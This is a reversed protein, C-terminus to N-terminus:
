GDIIGPQDVFILWPLWRHDDVIIATQIPVTAAVITAVITAAITTQKPIIVPLVMRKCCIGIYELWRHYYCSDNLKLITAAVIM